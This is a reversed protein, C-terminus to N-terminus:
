RENRAIALRAEGKGRWCRDCKGKAESIALREEEGKHKGKVERTEFSKCIPSPSMLKEIGQFFQEIGM